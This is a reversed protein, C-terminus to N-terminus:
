LGLRLRAHRNLRDAACCPLGRVKYAQTRLTVEESVLKEDLQLQEAVWIEQLALCPPVAGVELVAGPRAMAECSRM